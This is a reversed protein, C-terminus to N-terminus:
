GVLGIWTTTGKAAPPGVSTNARTSQWFIPSIRPWVITTSLTPPAPPVIPTLLPALAWGSPWVSSKVWM